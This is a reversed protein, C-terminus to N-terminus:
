EGGAETELIIYCKVKVSPQRESFLNTVEKQVIDFKGKQIEAFKESFVDPIKCKQM